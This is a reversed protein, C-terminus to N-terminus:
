SPRRMKIILKRTFVTENGAMNIFNKKQKQRASPRVALKNEGILKRVDPPLGLKGVEPDPASGTKKGGPRAAPQRQRRRDAATSRRQDSPCNKL